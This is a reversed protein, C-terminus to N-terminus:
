VDDSIFPSDDIIVVSETFGRQGDTLPFWQPIIAKSVMVETDLLSDADNANEGEIVPYKEEKPEYIWNHRENIRFRGIEIGVRDMATKLLEIDQGRVDEAIGKRTYLILPNGNFDCLLNSDNLLSFDHYYIGGEVLFENILSM